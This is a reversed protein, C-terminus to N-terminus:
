PTGGRRERRGVNGTAKGEWRWRRMHQLAGGAQWTRALMPAGGIKGPHGSAAVGLAIGMELLGATSWSGIGALPLRM